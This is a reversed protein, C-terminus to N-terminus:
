PCRALRALVDKSTKRTDINGNGDLYIKTRPWKTTIYVCNRLGRETWWDFMMFFNKDPFIHGLDFTSQGAQMREKHINHQTNWIYRLEDTGHESYYVNVVPTAIYWFLFPVVFLAAFVYRIKIKNVYTPVPVMEGPM